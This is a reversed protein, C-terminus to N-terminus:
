DRRAWSLRSGRNSLFSTEVWPKFVACAIARLCPGAIALIAFPLYLIVRKLGGHLPDNLFDVAFAFAVYNLGVTRLLWWFRPGLALQTRTFSFFALLYTFAVAIGFFIFTSVAPVAGLLCLWAILGLHVVLVSAFGLGFVRTYQKLALFAPGFLSAMAGGAYALWFFLFALRGTALLAWHIGREGGGLVMLMISALGLTACLPAGIWFTTPPLSKM